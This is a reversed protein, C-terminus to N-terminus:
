KLKGYASAVPVDVVGLLSNILGSLCEILWILRQNGVIWNEFFGNKLLRNIVVAFMWSPDEPMVPNSYEPKPSLTICADTMPLWLFRM